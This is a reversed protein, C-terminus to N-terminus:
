AWVALTAMLLYGVALFLLKGWRLRPREFVDQSIDVIGVYLFTGAALGDFVAEFAVARDGSLLTAFLTGLIVGLPTIASFFAIMRIHRTRSFGGQKLSVGLAFAAAGKHAIIAIFIAISTVVMAELGLTAGAIISHLSLVFLLIFPTSASGAPAGDVSEWGKLIGKELVLLLLFGLGCTLAGLPYDTGLGMASYKDEADPLMHLLAAGIFVGAAFANGLALGNGGRGQDDMRGPLMGSMMGVSFILLLALMKLLMLDMNEYWKDTSQAADALTVGSLGM